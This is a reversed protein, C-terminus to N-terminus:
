HVSEVVNYWFAYEGYYVVFIVLMCYVERRGASGYNMLAGKQICGVNSWLADLLCGWQSM